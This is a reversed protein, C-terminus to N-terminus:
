INTSLVICGIKVVNLFGGTAVLADVLAFRTRTQTYFLEDQEFEFVLFPNNGNYTPSAM